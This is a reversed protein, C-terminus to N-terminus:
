RFWLYFERMPSPISIRETFWEPNLKISAIRKHFEDDPIFPEDDVVIAVVKKDKM